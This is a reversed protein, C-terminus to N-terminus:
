NDDKILSDCHLLIRYIWDKNWEHKYKITNDYIYKIGNEDLRKLFDKSQAEFLDYGAIIIEKNILNEFEIRTKRMLCYDRMFNHESGFSDQMRWNENWKTSLPADWIMIGDILEPYKILINISGFGSKSFGLLYVKLNKNGYRLCINKILEITYELQWVKKNSDHNGYWPTNIYDQQIFVVNNSIKDNDILKKCEDFGNGYKYNEKYQEVPLIFILNLDSDETITTNIIRLYTSDEQYDSKIKMRIEQCHLSSIILHSLIVLIISKQKM